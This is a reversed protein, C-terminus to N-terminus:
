INLSELKEIEQKVVAARKSNLFPLTQRFLRKATENDGMKEQRIGQRLVELSLNRTFEEMKGRENEDKAKTIAEATKRLAKCYDDPTLVQELEAYFGAGSNDSHLRLADELLRYAIDHLNTQSSSKTKDSKGKEVAEQAFSLAKSYKGRYYAVKSFNVLQESIIDYCEYFELAALVERLIAEGEEFERQEDVATAIALNIREKMQQVLTKLKSDWEKDNM